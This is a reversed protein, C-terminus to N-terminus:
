PTKVLNEGAMTRTILIPTKPVSDPNEQLTIKVRQAGPSLPPVNVDSLRGISSSNVAQDMSGSRVSLSDDKLSSGDHEAERTRSDGQPSVTRPPKVPESRDSTGNPFKPVDAIVQRDNSMKLEDHDTVDEVLPVSEVNGNSAIKPQTSNGTDLLAKQMDKLETGSEVDGRKRGKRCFDGKYAAFGILSALIALLAVLVVYSGMGKKSQKAPSTNSLDDAATEEDAKVKGSKTLDHLKNDVLEVADTTTTTTTVAVNNIAAEMEGEIKRPAFVEEKEEKDKSAIIFQEEELDADVTATSTETTTPRFVNLLLDFLGGSSSSDEKESTQVVDGIKHWDGFVVESGSGEGSGEDGDGSSEVPNFLADVYVKKKETTATTSPEKKEESEFFIEEDNDSPKEIVKTAETSAPAEAVTSSPKQSETPKEELISAVTTPEPAQPFPTEVETEKPQESVNNVPDSIEASIEDEPFSNGSGYEEMSDNSPQDNQMERDQEELKCVIDTDLESLLAGRTNAPGDCITENSIHVHRQTVLDRTRLTACNCQLPNKDLNLHRLSKLTALVPPLQQIKNKRLNLSHLRDLGNLSGLELHKINNADLHLNKLHVLKDFTGPEITEIHSKSLDLYRLNTLEDFLGPRLVSQSVVTTLKEFRQSDWRKADQLEQCHAVVNKKVVCSGTVWSSCILVLLLPLLTRHM